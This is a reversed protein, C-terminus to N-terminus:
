HVLMWLAMAAMGVDEVLTLTSMPLTLTTGLCACKIAKKDLLAKIVGISSVVMLVLTAYLTVKLSVEFLYFFGLILELFPYLYGYFPLRAALIDYTKYAEQFGKLDFLKFTGFVLFFGAMFHTMWHSADGKFSVIALMGVILLLPRYISFWTRMRELISIKQDTVLTYPGQKSLLANLADIGLSPVKSFQVAPPTLTVQVGEDYPRLTEKIKEVCAQCHMGQVPYHTTM